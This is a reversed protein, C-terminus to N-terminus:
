AWNIWDNTWGKFKYYEDLLEKEKEPERKKWHDEPPKEDARRMGRSINISRVLNKNRRAVQWLDDSDIDMGTALNIFHPINYIHYAAGGGFQGRFSSCFACLGAADDIYHM